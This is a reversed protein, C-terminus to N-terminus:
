SSHRWLHPDQSSRALSAGFYDFRIDVDEHFNDPLDSMHHYSLDVWIANRRVKAMDKAIGCSPSDQEDFELRQCITQKKEFM